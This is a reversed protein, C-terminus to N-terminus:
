EYDDMRELARLDRLDEIKKRATEAIAKAESAQSVESPVAAKPSVSSPAQPGESKWELVAPPPEKKRTAGGTKRPQGKKPHDISSRVRNPDIRAHTYWENTACHVELTTFIEKCKNCERRRWVGGQPHRRTDLVHTSGGCDCNM